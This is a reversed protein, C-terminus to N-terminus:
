LNWLAGESKLLAIKLNKELESLDQVYGLGKESDVKILDRWM